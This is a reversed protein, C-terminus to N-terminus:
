EWVKFLLTVESARPGFHQRSIETREGSYEITKEYNGLKNFTKALLHWRDAVKQHDIGFQKIESALALLYYDKAKDYKGTLYSQHGLQSYLNIVKPDDEGYNKLYVPLTKEFYLISKERDGKKEWAKGLNFWITTLPINETSDQQFSGPLFAPGNPTWITTGTFSNGKSENLRSKLAKQLYEIARDNEGKYLLAVGLDNWIGAMEPHYEDLTKLKIAIAKEYYEIARDADGKARWALGLNNLDSGIEPDDSDKTELDTQLEKEYFELAKDYNGKQYEENGLKTWRNGSACNSLTVLALIFLLLM